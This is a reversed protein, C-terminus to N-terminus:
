NLDFQTFLEYFALFFYYGLPRIIFNLFSSNHHFLNTNFETKNTQESQITPFINSINDDPWTYINFKTSLFIHTHEKKNNQYYHVFSKFSHPLLENEITDLIKCNNVFNAFKSVAM